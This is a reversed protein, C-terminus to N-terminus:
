NGGTTTDAPSTVPPTVPVSGAPAGPADVTAAGVERVCRFGTYISAEDQEQTTRVGVGIYFADSDWSGGRVVRETEEESDYRPNFDSLNAYSPSFDDLTWEAVNGSINYVGWPTSPFAAVPATFAYGDAAYGGRGPNYNALYGGNAARPEPGNWPYIGGARGSRAVYEWEAETPLRGGQAECYAQAQNWSVAVVPYDAFATGRYYADFSAVSGADEWASADPEMDPQGDAFQRYERNSVEYKDVYFSSVTVRKLGARQLDLPDEDFLGMIFTGDPVLVRSGDQISGTAGPMVAGAYARTAEGETESIYGMGPLGVVEGDVSAPAQGAVGTVGTGPAAGTQGAMGPVGVSGPGTAATARGAVGENGVGVGSDTGAAPRTAASAPPGPLEGGGSVEPVGNAVVTGSRGPEAASGGTTTGAGSDATGVITGAVPDGGGDTAASGDAYAPLAAEEYDNGARLRDRITRARRTLKYNIGFTPTMGRDIGRFDQFPQNFLDDKAILTYRGIVEFTLGVVPTLDYEVGIGIPVVSVAEDWGGGFYRGYGASIFPELVLTERFPRFYVAGEISTAENYGLMGQFQFLEALWLQAGIQASPAVGQDPGYLGPGGKLMFSQASAPAAMTGALAACLAFRSFNRLM